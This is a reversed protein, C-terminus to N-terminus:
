TLSMKKRNKKILFPHRLLDKATPRHSPDRTLCSNVFSRAENSYKEPLQPIPRDKIIAYIAVMPMMDAWPPKKTAM